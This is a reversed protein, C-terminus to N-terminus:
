IDGLDFLKFPHDKVLADYAEKSTARIGDTPRGEVQGHIPHSAKIQEVWAWYDGVVDGGITWGSPHTRTHWGGTSNYEFGTGNEDVVTDDYILIDSDRLALLEFNNIAYPLRRHEKEREMVKIQACLEDFRRNLDLATNRAVGIQHSVEDRQRM